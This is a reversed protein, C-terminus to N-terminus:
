ETFVKFRLSISVYSLTERGWWSSLDCRKNVYLWIVTTTKRRTLPNRFRILLCPNSNRYDACTYQKVISMVSSGFM